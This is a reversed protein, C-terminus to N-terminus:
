AARAFEAAGAPWIRTDPPLKAVSDRYALQTEYWGRLEGPTLGEPATGGIDAYLPLNTLDAVPLAGRCYEQWMQAYLDELHRVLKATDFLLCSQRQLRLRQKLAHRLDADLGIRIAEGVYQDPTDCVLEPLGAARVLSGCVRAAFCKGLFTIIPLGAWLADSATTHAGYPSTDLFLDAIRYRAVHDPTRMRGAFVLREAAVGQATAGARLRSMTEASGDLLWLVSDPVARLIAMWRAFVPATIKNHGNFCCYVVANEPLGCAGRGPTEPATIRQRDNPQYCPLRLVKESFFIEDGRPVIVPDAILYHHHPSGMTGPYGLWNVIVPAPKLAVLRTRGDKTYGNLDVLIDIGDRVIAAAAARDSLSTIDTWRDVTARIRRGTADDAAPGSFYAFSEVRARDHHAFIEASLFGVAHDRLDSSLYGIRLPRPESQEPPPWFGATMPASEQAPPAVDQTYYRHANALQLLPDDVAAALSLPSIGRLIDARGLRGFPELPPWKCQTQRLAIWHQLADRQGPDLELCARLATEAVDECRGAELARGAQKWAAIKWALTEGNAPVVAQAAAFWEGVAGKADGMRERVSGANIRAALFDRNRALANQYAALAEAHDGADACLVGYNFLVAYIAPHADNHAIWVRYLARAREGAGRKQLGEAAGILDVISLSANAAAAFVQDNGADPAATDIVLGHNVSDPM